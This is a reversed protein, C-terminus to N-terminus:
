IYVARDEKNKGIKVGIKSYKGDIKSGLYPAPIRQTENKVINKIKKRKFFCERMM